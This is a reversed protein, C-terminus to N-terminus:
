RGGHRKTVDVLVGKTDGNLGFIDLESATETAFARLHRWDVYRADDCRSM